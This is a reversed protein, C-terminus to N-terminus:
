ARDMPAMAGGGGTLFRRVWSRAAAYQPQRPGGAAYKVLVEGVKEETTERQLDSLLPTYTAGVFMKLAYEACAYKVEKPVTNLPVTAPYEGYGSTSDEIPVGSRPWDLAQVNNWRVGAWLGYFVQVMYDTAMRLAAEQDDVNSWADNTARVSHYATAEAVSCYSEADARGQGDEVILSM